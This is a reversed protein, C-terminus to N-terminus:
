NMIRTDVAEESYQASMASHMKPIELKAPNYWPLYTKLVKGLLSFLAKRELDKQSRSKKVSDRPADSAPCNNKIFKAFRFVYKFFHYQGYMGVFLRYFYGGYELNTPSFLIPFESNASSNPNM